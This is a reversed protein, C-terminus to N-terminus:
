QFWIDFRVAPSALSLEEPRVDICSGTLQGTPTTDAYALDRPLYPNPGPTNPCLAARVEPSALFPLRFVGIFRRGADDSGMVFSRGTV